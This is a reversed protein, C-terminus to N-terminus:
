NVVAPVRLKLSKKRLLAFGALGFAVAVGLGLSFQPTIVTIPIDVFLQYVIQQSGEACNVSAQFDIIYTGHETTPAPAQAPNTASFPPSAVGPVLDLRWGPAPTGVSAVQNRWWYYNNGNVAIHGSEPGYPVILPANSLTVVIDPANGGGGVMGSGTASGLTYEDSNPTTVTIQTMAVSIFTGQCIGQLQAPNWTNGDAITQLSLVLNTSGGPALTAPSAYFNPGTCGAIQQCTVTTAFSAPVAFSLAMIAFLSIALVFRTSKLM